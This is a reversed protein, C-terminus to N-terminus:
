AIWAFNVERRKRKITCGVSEKRTSVKWRPRRSPTVVLFVSKAHEGKGGGREGSGSRFDFGMAKCSRGHTEEELELRSNYGVGM